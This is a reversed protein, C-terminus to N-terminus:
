RKGAKRAPNADMPRPERRDERRSRFLRGPLPDSGTRDRSLAQDAPITGVEESLAGVKADAYILVLQCQLRAFGTPIHITPPAGQAARRAYPAVKRPNDDNVINLRHALAVEDISSLGILSDKLGALQGETLREEFRDCSGAARAPDAFSGAALCFFFILLWNRGM